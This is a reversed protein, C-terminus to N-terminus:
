FGLLTSHRHTLLRIIEARRFARRRSRLWLLSYAVGWVLLGLGPFTRPSMGWWKGRRLWAQETLVQIALGATVAIWFRPQRALPPWIILVLRMWRALSRGTGCTLFTSDPHVKTHSYSSLGPPLLSCYAGRPLGSRLNPSMRENLQKTRATPSLNICASSKM